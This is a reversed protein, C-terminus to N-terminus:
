PCAQYSLDGGLLPKQGEGLTAVLAQCKAEELPELQSAGVVEGGGNRSGTGAITEGFAVHAWYYDGAKSVFCVMPGSGTAGHVKAGLACTGPVEVKAEVCTRGLRYGTVARIDEGDCGSTEEPQTATARDNAPLEISQLVRQATQQAEPTACSATITASVTGGGGWLPAPFHIGVFYLGTGPAGKSTVLRAVRGAVRVSEVSHEPADYDELRNSFGGLDASYTCGPAVFSAVCSDVGRVPQTILTPAQMSIGCAGHVRKWDSPVPEAERADDKSADSDPVGGDSAHAGGDNGLVPPWDSVPGDCATSVLLCLVSASFRRMDVPSAFKTGPTGARNEQGKACRPTGVHAAEVLCLGGDAADNTSSRNASAVRRARTTVQLTSVPPSAHARQTRSVKARLAKRRGMVM